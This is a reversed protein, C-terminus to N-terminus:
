FIVGAARLEKADLGLETAIEDSHQGFTPAHDSLRQPTDSFQAAARPERVRGAVPHEREVFVGNNTVQPDTPLEDLTNVPAGPLDFEASREVFQAVTTAAAAEKLEANLERRNTRRLNADAFRPDDALHPLGYTSCQGRFESETVVSTAAYGDALAVTSYVSAITPVRTADDDLLVADMASDPWMFAIATNLMALEIHQGTATGTARAFLAATIAQTATYATAKDCVLTRFLEPTGTAPHAQVSALGSSAQIVNDYARRGSSPGDPGYGSISTYILRPNLEHISEWGLGMRDMAGPRFNQILVDADALLRRMADLGAEHKVDIVLSRKGRNNNVYIGTMGNKSSGLHRMMDGMGPSEVKVVDAGQDALMMAALPGAIMVSMDVVKIGALPGTNVDDNGM